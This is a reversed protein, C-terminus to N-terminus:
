QDPTSKGSNPKGLIAISIDPDLESELSPDFRSFDIMSIVKDYLADVNKGHTASIGIIHDFGLSYLNWIEHEKEPYDVKNVVLLVKEQFPRLITLLHKM